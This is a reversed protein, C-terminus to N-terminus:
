NVAYSLFRCTWSSIRTRVKEILPLYDQALMAKTMLPLGLYHVPLQGTAFPFSLQIETKTEEAIGAMYLTSKEISIKLGSCKAYNDFVSIIGEISRNTGEAFVM